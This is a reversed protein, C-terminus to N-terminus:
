RGRGMGYDGNQELQTIPSDKLLYSQDQHGSLTNAQRETQFNRSSARQLQGDGVSVGSIASTAETSHESSNSMRFHPKM